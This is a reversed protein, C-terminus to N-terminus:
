LQGLREQLMQMLKPHQELLQCLKDRDRLLSQIAEPSKFYEHLSLGADPQQQSQGDAPQQTYEVHPQLQEHSFQQQQTQYYTQMSPVQSQQLMNIQHVQANSQVAMGQELQQLAQVPPRLQPPQPPRTLQPPQLPQLQTVSHMSQFSAPPVSINQLINPQNETQQQNPANGFMSLPMSAPRSFGMPPNPYSSLRAGSSAISSHSLETTGMSTQNYISPQSGSSKVSSLNYQSSVFPPPTPPLPPAVRNPGGPSSVSTRSYKSDQMPISSALATATTGNNFPSPYDLQVQFAVPRQTGAQPNVFSTSQSPVSDTAHSIIPSVTPPPPMPPLPPQNPLFRQDYLGQSGTAIGGHQPSNKLLYNQSVMRSDAPLQMSSSPNNYLSMPFSTNSAASDYRGSPKVQVNKLDDAQEVYKRDSSVSSERTLSMDPRSGSIKSSFESQANEDVNSRLPTGMQSFQGSDVVDSGTEEVISHPSSQEVIVPAPQQINDDLQPFLLKDDPDSEEGDFVIDIGQLDDDLDTKLQKSKNLKEMDAPKVPSANKLHGVAEGVVTASPNQRERQRAMFEDVHISPPRGGTSGARPVSIVNTVGEVIRERAVYDDVHMSPPRSTNPKRHRFADRRTTGSSVASQAPGRSFANQSSIDGQFSEGRARRVPGDMSPLKRKAALNTQTLRDPLIEPCEWLFKDGLGGVYLHDDIKEVSNELLQHRNSFGLVDYQPLVADELKMSGAPRELILSLSKVSESVQYLPIQSFSTVLCDDMAAKSSLLASFELIYNINEEPFGVSRTMDDSIGFLYKLAVVRDSNLSDGNMCFQISGVSLAYVAEIACTSLGEKTDDISKLLKMWCSLLPPCKRWEAVSSVSYNVNRDGKRPDLEYAHSNIGLHTAGFAMQGEDCSALDKFATLCALLEKGVPLVQCSKLIYQLILASDEDSLKEFNKFDHRRPYHHSTESHFLLMIFKFIPLCWSYINFSCTASSRDPTQKGDDTIVFCRDLLKTLIQLTGERLLLVKGLPHELLSVLFDLLRLIKYADTDSPFSSESALHVISSLVPKILISAYKPNQCSIRIVFVRLLDQVVGLASIAYNQIIEAIKDLHPVLQGLLKELHGSELYWNVHREKQPGLITGIGLMRRTTLLPMGSTWLWIDEEPFLDSLLYLLSCTEKPGLTLLSSSQVSALLTNFLGPSWGHVPWFALASAILHCVAGYGIAYDPYRSSLDAACAALKPSIERHLRLLANMLKTNRHQEKAEQLKQLLTILLVLSPVLLDVINLERNRELLLDSTTNCETGEDVLYDYNNSSRELMFRCNVLIAYIVIVAGENYLTAAVTPNESIFSLIRLATTLQALSSDRLTVGDFSKESIFKGLNEMVNIDSGSSSEGVVNEVDTLDSVLISTSTLQADGGSALVAAYRMLGIGGHKHYVVGADIWELLRSPADKRNSGPSSFHLARHLEMAHGIWSGLSSSASDTVIAEIIEAASHFITLNVASSGSNKGVSESEKISSLAEILISVAEPFNGLALLARRGCDSRSLTSLEWVVWLFEESQPNSSLLSDTANAMKLHMEIIMGIELPSCFFGKSILISAYQLPICNEKNGRHGGRLALILTSSLEPDQLLFILGSRSFLFSLIVAEVSSTVDMFLEMVHGTGTRLISSSLLATSLSLFGREKLLGLLHSDIDCDSFCCSSSSILSSTTKYSLLGDTQGTILSRSARAIPSPDEIPGRSNILNLLKRLLIEASSLMNLTVDTVRGVTSINELVSLVASEYRSAIEYFRLRHLLYTALSAVDHRPKSLILKVLYSYGESIGSPISEDERPWWGLFAECGVSYRTAREIVGLLLLMITTSNQGDKSFFVALQEMGGSSVFQFGSERGSCLLYAMSLGLLAHERQSLCHDGTCSSHIQFNFYQNFMDVLTKSDLMEVDMELYNAESSCESSDSRSKRHLVKYVELLEKRAENIAGHLEELNESRKWMQYRGSISECIDSSIYSSIASVVSNVIKHGADGPDSFELFKLMLQLFLNVELAINTAPVPISLVSLSSRSDRITFNTSHLAPPLDELKGETSDVLDTLANDDIDINFQGLDEATNGYIVLSLSRYSGRVVLHSTVVAEVELVNSSSQSYLFPQCLRRFRTEGECHVFVEIAFSPPSTAGVLSVAQAVSSASQELFECATIVIPESFIVEDVYEDLHPHVFTQSFLVCPEPRGM